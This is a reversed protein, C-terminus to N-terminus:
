FMYGGSLLATEVLEVAVSQDWNDGEPTAVHAELQDEVRTLSLKAGDVESRFSRRGDIVSAVQSLACPFSYELERNAQLKNAVVNLTGDPFRWFELYRVGGESGRECFSALLDGIM